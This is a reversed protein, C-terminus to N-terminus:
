ARSERYKASMWGVGMIFAAIALLLVSEAAAFDFNGYTLANVYLDWDLTTSAYGPGGGTLTFIWPFIGTFVMIVLLVTWLEVTPRISPLIIHRMRQWWGAGDLEASELLEGDVATLAASFLVVGMGMTAWALVLIIVPKVLNENTLWGNALAGLGLRRLTENLTGNTALMFSFLLGILAPPSTGAFFFIARFAGPLPVGEYLLFSVALPFGVWLPVGLLLIFQNSLLQQFQDSAFIERYNDLGIWTSGYGPTWETFSHWIASGVPILVVFAILVTVPLVMFLESAASTVRRLGSFATRRAVRTNETLQHM